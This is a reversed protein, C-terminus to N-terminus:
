LPGDDCSKQKHRCGINCRHSCDRFNKGKEEQQVHCGSKQRGLLEPWAAAVLLGSGDTMLVTVLRRNRMRVTVRATLDAMM